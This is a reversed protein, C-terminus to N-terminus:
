SGCMLCDEDSDDPYLENQLRSITLKMGLPIEGKIKSATEKLEKLRDEKNM